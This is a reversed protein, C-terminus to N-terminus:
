GKPSVTYKGLNPAPIGNGALRYKRQMTSVVVFSLNECRLCVKNPPMSCVVLATALKKTRPPSVRRKAMKRCFDAHFVRKETVDPTV